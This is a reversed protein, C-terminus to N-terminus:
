SEATAEVPSMEMKSQLYSRKKPPFRTVYLKIKIFTDVHKFLSVATKVNNKYIDKHCYTRNLSVKYRILMYQLHALM